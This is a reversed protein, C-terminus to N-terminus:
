NIPFLSEEVRSGSHKVYEPIFFAKFAGLVYHRVDASITM